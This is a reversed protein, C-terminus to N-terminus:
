SYTMLCLDFIAKNNLKFLLHRKKIHNLFLCIEFNNKLLLVSNLM